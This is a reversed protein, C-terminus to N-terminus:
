TESELMSNLTLRVQESVKGYWLRIRRRERTMLTIPTVANSVISSLEDGPVSYVPIIGLQDSYVRAAEDPLATTLVAVHGPYSQELESIAPFNEECAPCTPSVIYFVRQGSFELSSRVGDAVNIASITSPLPITYLLHHGARSEMRWVTASDRVERSEARVQLLMARTSRLELGTYILVAALVVVVMSDFLSRPTPSM